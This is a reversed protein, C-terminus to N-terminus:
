FGREQTGAMVHGRALKGGHDQAQGSSNEGPPDVSLCFFFQNTAKLLKFFLGNKYIM